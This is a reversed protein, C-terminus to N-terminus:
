RRVVQAAFAASQAVLHSLVAVASDCFVEFKLFLIYFIVAEAMNFTAKPM